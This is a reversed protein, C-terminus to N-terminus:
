MTQDSPDWGMYGHNHTDFIGPIIINDGFDYDAELEQMEKRIVDTIKGNEVKIYGDFTGYESIITSSHYIM